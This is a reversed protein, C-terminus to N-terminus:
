GTDYLVLQHIITLWADDQLIGMVLWHDKTFSETVLPGQYYCPGNVWGNM